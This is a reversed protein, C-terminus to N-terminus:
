YLHTTMKMVSKYPFLIMPVSNYLHLLFMRVKNMFEDLNPIDVLKVINRGM